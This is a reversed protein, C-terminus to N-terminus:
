YRKEGSGLLIINQQKKTLKVWPKDLPIKLHKFMQRHFVAGMSKKDEDVIGIPKLAGERLTLNRDPIILDPDFAVQTGLGNCEHCM